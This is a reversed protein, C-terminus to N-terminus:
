SKSYSFSKTYLLIEIHRKHKSDTDKSDSVKICQIPPMKQEKLSGNAYLILWGKCFLHECFLGVGSFCWSSLIKPLEKM